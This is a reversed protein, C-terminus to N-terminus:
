NASRIVSKCNTAKSCEIAHKVPKGHKDIFISGGAKVGRVQHPITTKGFLHKPSVEPANAFASSSASIVALAIISRKM